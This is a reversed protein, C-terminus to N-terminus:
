EGKKDTLLLDYLRAKLKTIEYDKEAARQKMEEIKHNGEAIKKLVESLERNKDTYKNTTETVLENLVEKEKVLRDNDIKVRSLESKLVKYNNDANALEVEAADRQQKMSCAFDNEINGEAIEFCGEFATGIYSNEGLGEVIAKIKELAKREQEKMTM